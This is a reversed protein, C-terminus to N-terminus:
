GEHNSAQDACFLKLGCGALRSQEKVISHRDDAVKSHPPEVGSQSWDGTSAKVAADLIQSWERLLIPPQTMCGSLRTAVYPEIQSPSVVFSV